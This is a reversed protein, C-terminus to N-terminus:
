KLVETVKVTYKKSFEKEARKVMKKNTSLAFVASGSGTMMCIKFGYEKLEDIATQIEPVLRISSEQLSNSISEALLDDDGEELAKIVKDVDCTNFKPTKDFEQYAVKTSCGAEPKLILCHYNNKVTIPTMIEGIGECRAPVNDIFFPVDAGLEKSIDLLENKDANLKCFKNIGLLTAAANSSGGGMGAQMPINKHIIIKFKKNKLDYKKELKDIAKHAINNKGIYFTFDDLIVFNDKKNKLETILLSDHLKLPLMVMDLEHYGDERISKINLAINIKAYAKQVIRKM